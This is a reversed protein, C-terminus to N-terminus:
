TPSPRAAATVMVSKVPCHGTPDTITMPNDDAYAHLNDTVAAGGEAPQTDQDFFGGAPTRSTSGRAWTSRTNTPDTWQGQYGVQIAPGSSALVHGM